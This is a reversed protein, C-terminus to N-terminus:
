KSVVFMEFEDVEGHTREPKQNKDEFLGHALRKPYENQV